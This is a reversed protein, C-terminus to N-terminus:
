GLLSLFQQTMLQLQNDLVSKKALIEDAMDLLDEEVEKLFDRFRTKRVIVIPPSPVFVYTSPVFTQLLVQEARSITENKCVVLEGDFLVVPLFIQIDGAYSGEPFPIGRARARLASLMLSHLMTYDFDVSKAVTSTTEVIKPFPNEPRSQEGKPLRKVEDGTKAIEKDSLCRLASSKIIGLEVPTKISQAAGYSLLPIPPPMGYSPLTQSTYSQISSGKAVSVHDIITLAFSLPKRLPRLYFVWAYVDSTACQINMQLCLRYPHLSSGSSSRELIKYARIDIDRFKQTEPDRYFTSHAATWGLDELIGSAHIELRFGSRKIQDAIHQLERDIDSV